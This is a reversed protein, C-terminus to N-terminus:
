DGTGSLPVTQPSGGGDDYIYVLAPAAAKLILWSKVPPWSELSKGWVVDDTIVPALQVMVTVKSGVLVPLRTTPAAERNVPLAGDLM